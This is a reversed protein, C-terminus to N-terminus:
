PDTIARRLDEVRLKLRGLIRQFRVDDAVNDFRPDLSLSGYDMWGAAVAAELHELASKNRGLSSEIASVRYLIDPNDSAFELQHMEKTLCEELIIRGNSSHNQVLGLRGLASAYSVNGYFVGGGDQDTQKLERYLRQAETFNRSFFEIQAALQVGEIAEQHLSRNQRCFARAKAFEANLLYLRAMGIWAQSREPHIDIARQYATSAKEYDGLAAWSDGIDSDYEGGHRYRSRALQFWRLAQDPRGLEYYIRGLLAVSRGDAPNTESARFAAELARRLQGRQYYVGALVRLAEGSSPALRLAEEVEREAYSLLNPDAIYHTRTAAASALYAHALGSGPELQLAKEFCSRARDFDRVTDHFGFERGAVILERAQENRLGPDRKSLILSSRDNAALISYIAPALNKTFLKLDVPRPSLDVIREFLLEGDPDILQMSVQIGHDTKRRTGSLVTRTRLNRAVMKVDEGKSVLVVRANGISSLETQLAQALTGTWESEETANELDLFPLVAVSNRALENERVKNELKWSRIERAVVAAGFFLCIALSGALLPNRRSWRYLRAPPSVPRARIPRGELWRDLEEALLAASQYRLDPDRELCRACITELDRSVKPVVSHLKPADDEAAQRLVAVAHEGLFPPRGSILEFLIAGLSYIDTAPTLDAAANEAQEPAIYGPTGFVTLTCTLESATDLWKALGFDSVMPEGRADLLINGPKLDRHLIGQSHAHDIARAVTAILQVARRPSNRFSEKSDLLSGGSALKMSFFPLGDDTAGVDYIPLINPHDLSAAARAERQFRALTEGSDSHYNLVRKLAVIRRSPAHRARYIVGMGGRGIEELIRYNGLQWDRDPVDVAALLADFDEVNAEESDLGSRLLCSVCLGSAVRALSGCRCRASDQASREPLDTLGSFDMGGNVGFQGTRRV